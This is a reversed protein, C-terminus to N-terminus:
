NREASWYQAAFNGTDDMIAKPKDNYTDISYEEGFARSTLRFRGNGEDYCRWQQGPVPKGQRSGLSSTAATIGSVDLYGNNHRFRIGYYGDALRDFRVVQRAKIAQGLFTDGITVVIQPGIDTLHGGRWNSWENRLRIWTGEPVPCNRYIHEANLFIRDLAADQPKTSLVRQGDRGLRDLTAASISLGSATAFLDPGPQAPIRDVAFTMDEGWARVLREIGRMADAMRGLPPGIHLHRNDLFNRDQYYQAAANLLDAYVRLRRTTERLVRTRSTMHQRATQVDSWLRQDFPEDFLDARELMECARALTEAYAMGLSLVTEAAAGVMVYDRQWSSAERILASISGFERLRRTLTPPAATILTPSAPIFYDRGLRFSIDSLATWDEPGFQLVPLPQQAIECDAAVPQALSMTALCAARQLAQAHPRIWKM